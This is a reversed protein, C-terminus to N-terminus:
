LSVFNSAPQVVLEMYELHGSVSYVEVNREYHLLITVGESYIIDYVKTYILLNRGVNKRFIRYIKADYSKKRCFLVFQLM